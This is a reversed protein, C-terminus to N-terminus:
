DYQGKIREWVQEMVSPKNGWGGMRPGTFHWVYSDNVFSADDYKSMVMNNWIGDLLEVGDCDKWGIINVPTQDIADPNKGTEEYSKVWYEFYPIIKESVTEYNERSILLFGSNCYNEPRCTSPLVFDSRWQNFHYLGTSTGGADRVMGFEVDVYEEFINPADWRVMTDTDVILIRDYDSEKVFSEQWKEYACFGGVKFDSEIQKNSIHFDIGYKDAYWKWTNIGHPISKEQNNHAAIFILNTSM